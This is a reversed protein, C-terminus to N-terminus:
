GYITNDALLTEAADPCNLESTYDNCSVKHLLKTVVTKCKLLHFLFFITGFYNNHGHCTLLLLLLLRTTHSLGLLESYKM